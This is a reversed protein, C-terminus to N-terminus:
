SVQCGQPPDQYDCLYAEQLPVCLARNRPTRFDGGELAHEARRGDRRGTGYSRRASGTDRGHQSALPGTPCSNHVPLLCHECSKAIVACPRAARGDVCLVIRCIRSPHPADRLRRVRRPAGRALQVHAGVLQDRLPDRWVTM